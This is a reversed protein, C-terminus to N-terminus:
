RDAQEGVLAEAQRSILRRHKEFILRERQQRQTKEQRALYEQLALRVIKSRNTRPRGIGSPRSRLPKEATQALRDLGALTDVDISVAITKM